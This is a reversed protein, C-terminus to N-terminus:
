ANTDEDRYLCAITKDDTHGPVPWDTLWARLDASREPRPMGRYHHYVETSFAAVREPLLDDAIGDTCLVFADYQSGALRATRWRAVTRDSGLGTTVNSFSEQAEALPLDVGGDARCAAIMGDGLQGLCVDGDAGVVAFLCTSSCDEPAVPQILFPWLAGILRPLQAADALSYRHWFRAAERVARCAARSGIESHLCSGLGDAVTVLDGWRRHAAAWADQNPLGNGIHAPGTVSAGWSRWVQRSM